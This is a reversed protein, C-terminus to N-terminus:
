SQAPRAWPGSGRHAIWEAVQEPHTQRGRAGPAGRPQGAACGTVPFPQPPPHGLPEAAAGGRDVARRDDPYVGSEAPPSEGYAWDPRRAHATKETTRTRPHAPGQSPGAM